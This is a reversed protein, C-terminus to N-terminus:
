NATVAAPAPAPAAAPALTPTPSAAPNEVRVLIPASVPKLCQESWFYDGTWEVYDNTDATFFFIGDANKGYAGDIDPAEIVLSQRGDYTTHPDSVLQDGSQLYSNLSSVKGDVPFFAVATGNSAFLTICSVLDLANVRKAREALNARELSNTVKPIPTSRLLAAQNAAAAQQESAQTTPTSPGGCAALITAIGAIAALGLVFRRINSM